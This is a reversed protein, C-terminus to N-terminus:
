FQSLDMSSERLNEGAAGDAVFHLELDVAEGDEAKLGRRNRRERRWRKSWLLALPLLGGRRITKGTRIGPSPIFFRSIRNAPITSLRTTAVASARACVFSLVFCSACSM